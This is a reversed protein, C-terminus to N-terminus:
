VVAVTKEEEFDLKIKGEKDLDVTVRGSGAYELAPALYTRALDSAELLAPKPEPGNALVIATLLEKSASESGDGLQVGSFGARRAMTDLADFQTRAIALLAEMSLRSFLIWEAKGLEAM